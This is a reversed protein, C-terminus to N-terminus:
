ACAAIIDNICVQGTYDSWISKSAIAVVLNLEPVVFIFQGAYGLAYYGDYQGGDGFSRIWWQYGYRGKDPEGQAHVAISRTIWDRSILQRGRWNGNEAYLQGLKAADRVSLSVGNGGDVIGQPDKGWEFHEIGLPGFLHELAFDVTSIGAAQELVASLMHSGATSYFFATGPEAVLPLALYREVWNESRVHNTFSQDANGEGLGSTHELLHEVTIDEKGANDSDALQPYFDALRVDTGALVGKDIAIGILAGM